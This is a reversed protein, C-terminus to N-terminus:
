SVGVSAKDGSGKADGVVRKVKISIMPGSWRAMINKIDM